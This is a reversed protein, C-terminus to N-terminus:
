VHRQCKIVYLGTTSMNSCQRLQASKWFLLINLQNCNFLANNEIKKIPCQFNAHWCAISVWLGTSMIGTLSLICNMYVWWIVLLYLGIQQRPPATSSRRVRSRFTAPKVGPRPAILDVLDVWGEMGGPYTFRTGAQIAPNPPPVNVQTPHYTVSHSGM